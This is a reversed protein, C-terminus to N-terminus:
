HVKPPKGGLLSMIEAATPGHPGTRHIHDDIETGERDFRETIDKMSMSKFKEAAREMAEAANGDVQQIEEATRHNISDGRSPLGLSDAMQDIMAAASRLHLPHLPGIVTEGCTLCETTITVGETTSACMAKGVHRADMTEKVPKRKQHPTYSFPGLKWAKM